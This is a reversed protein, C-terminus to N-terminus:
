LSVTKPPLLQFVTSIDRDNDKATVVSGFLTEFDEPDDQQDDTL